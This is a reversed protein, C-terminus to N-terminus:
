MKESLIAVVLTHAVEIKCESCQLNKGERICCDCSVKFNHDAQEITKSSYQYQVGRTQFKEYKM